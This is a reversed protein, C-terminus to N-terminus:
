ASPSLSYYDMSTKYFLLATETSDAPSFGKNSQVPSDLGPRGGTDAPIPCLSTDLTTWELFAGSNEEPDSQNFERTARPSHVQAVAHLRDSQQCGSGEGQPLVWTWKSLKAGVKEM